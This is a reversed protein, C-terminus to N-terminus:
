LYRPSVEVRVQRRLRYLHPCRKERRYHPCICTFEGIAHDYRIKGSLFTALWEEDSMEDWPGSPEDYPTSM